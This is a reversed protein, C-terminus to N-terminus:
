SCGNSLLDPLTRQVRERGDAAQRGGETGSGLGSTISLLSRTAGERWALWHLAQLFYVQIRFTSSLQLCLLRPTSVIDDDLSSHSIVSPHSLLSLLKCGGKVERTCHEPLDM